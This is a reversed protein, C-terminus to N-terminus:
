IPFLDGLRPQDITELVWGKESGVEPGVLAGGALALAVISLVLRTM